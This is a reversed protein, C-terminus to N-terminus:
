DCDETTIFAFHNHETFASESLVDIQHQAKVEADSLNAASVRITRTEIRTHAIVYIKDDM